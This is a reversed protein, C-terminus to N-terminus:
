HKEQLNLKTLLKKSIIIGLFAGTSNAIFDYFDGSRMEIFNEQLIEIIGGIIICFVFVSLKIKLTPIKTKILTNYILTIALFFYMSIHILKDFHPIDILPVEKVSSGPTLSLFLVIILAIASKYYSKIMKFLNCLIRILIYQKLSHQLNKTQQNKKALEVEVFVTEWFAM